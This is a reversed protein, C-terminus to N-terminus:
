ENSLKSLSTEYCHELTEKLDRFHIDRKLMMLNIKTQTLDSIQTEIDSIRDELSTIKDNSM